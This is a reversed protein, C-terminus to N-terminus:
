ELSFSVKKKEKPKKTEVVEEIEETLTLQPPACKDLLDQLIENHNQNEKMLDLSKMLDRVKYIDDSKVDKESELHILEDLTEECILKEVVVENKQGIRHARKIAQMEVSKDLIPEVIFIRSAQVVNLGFAALRINMVIVRVSDDSEFLHLNLSRKSINKHEIM